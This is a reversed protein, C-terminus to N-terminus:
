ARSRSIAATKRDILAALAVIRKSLTKFDKKTPVGLRRLSRAVSHELLQELMRRTEAAKAAAERLKTEAARQMLPQITKGERVLAVFARNGENRTTSFAGLGAMWISHASRRVTAALDKETRVGPRGKLKNAM